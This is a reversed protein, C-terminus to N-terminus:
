VVPGSLTLILILPILNMFFQEYKVSLINIHNTESSIKFLNNKYCNPFMCLIISPIFHDGKGCDIVSQM